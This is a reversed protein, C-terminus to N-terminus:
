VGAAAYEADAFGARVGAGSEVLCEYGLKQVQAASAPTLAVRAEGEIVERPVGFRM